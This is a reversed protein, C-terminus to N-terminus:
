KGKLIDSVKLYKTCKEEHWRSYNGITTIIGCKSCEKKTTNMVYASNKSKKLEVYNEEYYEYYNVRADIFLQKLSKKSKNNKSLNEEWLIFQLNSIHGIIEPPVKNTFGDFISYVHDLQYGFNNKKSRIRNKFNDLLTLNNKNTFRWVLYKYREYDTKKDIPIVLFKKEKTKLAKQTSLQFLNFGNEDLIEKKRKNTEKLKSLVKLLKSSIKTLKSLEM